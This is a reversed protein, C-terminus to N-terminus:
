EDNREGRHYRRERKQWDQRAREFQSVLRAHERELRGIRGSERDLSVVSSSPGGQVPVLPVPHASAEETPESSSNEYEVVEIGGVTRHSVEQLAELVDEGILLDQNPM